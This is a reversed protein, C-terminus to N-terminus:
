WASGSFDGLPRKFADGYPYDVLNERTKQIDMAPDLAAFPLALIFTGTSFLSSIFTVPRVALADLTKDENSPQMDTAVPGAEETATREDARAPEQTAGLGQIPLALALALVAGPFRFQKAM